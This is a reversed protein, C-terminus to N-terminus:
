ASVNTKTNRLHKTSIKAFKEIKKLLHVYRLEYFLDVKAQVFINGM